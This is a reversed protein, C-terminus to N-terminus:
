LCSGIVRALHTPLQSRSTARRNNMAHNTLPSVPVFKSPVPQQGLGLDLSLGSSRSSYENHSLLLADILSPKLPKYTLEFDLLMMARNLALLREFVASLNMCIDHSAKTLQCTFNSCTMLLELSRPIWLYKLYVSCSSFLEDFTCLYGTLTTFGCLHDLSLQRELCYEFFPLPIFLSAPLPSSKVEFDAHLIEIKHRWMEQVLGSAPELPVLWVPQYAMWRFPSSVLAHCTTRPSLRELSLALGLTNECRQSRIHSM